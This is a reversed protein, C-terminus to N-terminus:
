GVPDDVSAAVQELAALRFVQVDAGAPFSPRRTNTVVDFDNELFTEIGWDIVDPDLLVCDGTIEVVVESEVARHADVVRQLVDEESGRHVPIGEATAWEVLRDDAPSVTTALVISDLRTSRRLRRLLRTLAPQGGIEY